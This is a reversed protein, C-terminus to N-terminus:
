YEEVVAPAASSSGGSRPWIQGVCFTPLLYFMDRVYEVMVWGLANTLFYAEIEETPLYCLSAQGRKERTTIASMSMAFEREGAM